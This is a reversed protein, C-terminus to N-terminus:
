IPVSTWLTLWWFAAKLIKILKINLCANIELEHRHTRFAQKTNLITDEYIRWHSLAINVDIDFNDLASRPSIFLPPPSRCDIFLETWLVSCLVPGHQASLHKDAAVLGVNQLIIPYSSVLDAVIIAVCLISNSFPSLSLVCYWSRVCLACLARRVVVLLKWAIELLYKQKFSTEEMVHSEPWVCM